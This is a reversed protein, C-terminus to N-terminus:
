ELILFDLVCGAGMSKIDSCITTINTWIRLSIFFVSVSVILLSLFILLSLVIFSIKTNIKLLALNLFSIIFMFFFVNYESPFKLGKFYNAIFLGIFIEIFCSYTNYLLLRNIEPAFKPNKIFYFRLRDLLPRKKKSTVDNGATKSRHRPSSEPTPQM